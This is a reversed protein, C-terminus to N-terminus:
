DTGTKGPQTLVLGVRGFVPSINACREAWGQIALATGLIAAGWQAPTLGCWLAPELRITESAFRYACYAIVYLRLRRGSFAERRLHTALLWAMTAHFIM